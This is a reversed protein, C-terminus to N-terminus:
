NKILHLRFWRYLKDNLYALLGILLIYIIIFVTFFLTSIHASQSLIDPKFVQMVRLVIVRAIPNVVFISASFVGLWTLIRNIRILGKVSKVFCVFLMVVCFPLLIWLYYNSNMYISLGFLVGTLIAFISQHLKKKFKGEERGIWVGCLFVPLWSFFNNKMYNMIMIGEATLPVAYMTILFIVISVFIFTNNRYKNYLLYTLYLQFTLGFYWYVGPNFPNIDLILNNLLTLYAIMKVSGIIKGYAISILMFFLVGPLMLFFLKKYNKWIYDKLKFTTKNSEYKKVVGYGSLFVFVAVGCWGWFSFFHYTFDWSPNTAESIFKVWNEYRFSMENEQCYGFLYYHAFNHIAICLIAIGKMQTTEERTLFM